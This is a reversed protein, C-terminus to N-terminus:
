LQVAQMASWIVLLVGALRGLQAGQSSMREATMLLSLALMWALNVGGAAFMLLMLAWCNGLCFLGHHLGVAWLRSRPVQTLTPLAAGEFRCRVLCARKVPTLQYVGALLLVGPAILNGLSPVQEVLEHLVSDGWYSIAGFVVWIAVYGAIVPWLYGIAFMQGSASRRLLLLTAPLMMAVVMLTWGLTFVALRLSAPAPLHAMEAHDLWEAYPSMGWATLIVWAALVLVVAAASSRWRVTNLQALASM